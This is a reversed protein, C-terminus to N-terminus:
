GQLQLKELLMVIGEEELDRLLRGKLITRKGFKAMKDHEQDTEEEYESEEEEVVKMKRSKMTSKTRKALTSPEASKTKLHSKKKYSKIKKAKPTVAEVEETEEEDYLVLDMEEIEVEEVHEVMKKKGKAAAKRKSEELAKELEAESQKKQSRTARGRTPPTVVFISSATKRKKNVRATGSIKVLSNNKRKPNYSDSMTKLLDELPEQVSSVAEQFRKRLRVTVGMFSKFHKLVM